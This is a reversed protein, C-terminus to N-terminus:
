LYINKLIGTKGVQDKTATNFGSIPQLIKFTPAKRVAFTALPTRMCVSFIFIHIICVCFLDNKM